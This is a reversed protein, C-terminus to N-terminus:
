YTQQAQQAIFIASAPRGSAPHIPERIELLRLDNDTFLRVWSELTRFYWPAPDTFEDGFGDWSGTRWGDRYAADGCATLPHLTQVIFSANPELLTPLATFVDEVAQQGLLSFNCVVLDARVDLEGRALAAYSLTRYEGGDAAYAQEILEPVVDIGLMGIDQATLARALWGEGCGVDIATRPARSLIADVVAQDTVLRRSEVQRARM